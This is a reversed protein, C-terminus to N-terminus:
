SPLTPVKLCPAGPERRDRLRYVVARDIREVNKALDLIVPEGTLAQSFFQCLFIQQNMAGKGFVEHDEDKDGLAGMNSIDVYTAHPALAQATDLGLAHAGPSRADTSRKLVHDDKNLTVFTRERLALVDLWAAHGVDDADPQSFLVTSFLRGETSCHGDAVARQLVISGMSHVLLAPKPKAPNALQYKGLAALVQGFAAGGAGTHSLPVERDLFSFGNFASDWNFMLVSVGYGREIKHVAKGETFTAGLLSKGPEKGRGHVFIVIPKGLAALQTMAAGLQDIRWSKADSTYLPTDSNFKLKAM